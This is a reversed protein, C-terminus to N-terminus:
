TQKGAALMKVRCKPMMLPKPGTPEIPTRFSSPGRNSGLLHDPTPRTTAPLETVLGSASVSSSNLLTNASVNHKSSYYHSPPRFRTSPLVPPSRFQARPLELDSNLPYQLPNLSPRQLGVSDKRGALTSSSYQGGGGGAVNQKLTLAGKKAHRGRGAEEHLDGIITVNIGQQALQVLQEPTKSALTANLSSYAPVPGRSGRRPLM